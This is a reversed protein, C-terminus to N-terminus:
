LRIIFINDMFSILGVDSINQLKKNEYKQVIQKVSAKTKVSPKRLARM